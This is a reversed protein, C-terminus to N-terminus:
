HLFLGKTFMQSFMQRKVAETLGVTMGVLLLRSIYGVLLLMLAVDVDM